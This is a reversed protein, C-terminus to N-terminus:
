DIRTRNMYYVGAHHLVVKGAAFIPVALILGVIGGVEGGVLLALIILLPHLHLTRGVVYPSVINSEVMQCLTNVVVVYLVLRFSVTSAMIVAPAAGLFPGLYPVIDFVAVMGAFLLPYPMGIITYGIYALLGIVLCVIFQGRIYSGLAADIERLLKVTSKRRSRPLCSVLLREFVDFDKLIYFVLFPVIFADFLIGITTGIHDLLNSIGHALRNEMEVLWSDMGRGVGPPIIGTDMSRMMGQARLTMEPLHENLEELQKLFMPILNIAIVTLVTLFVTYILLVAVGRPMKRKGLRAVVPNLVYSVIIAAVFPALVAKLFLYVGHLMPRLLWFFYLIILVLLLGILRRFGKGQLWEEM